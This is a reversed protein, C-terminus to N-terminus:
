TRYQPHFSSQHDSSPSFVIILGRTPFSEYIIVDAASFASDPRPVQLDKNIGLKVRGNRGGGRSRLAGVLYSSECALSSSTAFFVRDFVAFRRRILARRGTRTSGRGSGGGALRALGMELMEAEMEYQNYQKEIDEHDVCDM